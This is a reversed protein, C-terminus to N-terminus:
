VFFIVFLDRSEERVTLARVRRRRVDGGSLFVLVVTFRLLEM